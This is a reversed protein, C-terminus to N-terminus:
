TVLQILNSLNFCNNWIMLETRLWDCHLLLTSDSMVSAIVALNYKLRVSTSMKKRVIVAFYQIQM